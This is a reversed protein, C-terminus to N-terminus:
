LWEKRRFIRWLVFCSTAITLLVVFYGYRWNLEPMHTFNMGYIGAIMTPVSIIAAWSSIKRNDRNQQIEIKGLAARVLTHIVEDFSAIQDAAVTHHDLVDRFYRRVEKPVSPLEDTALRYLPTSLPIIAKKQDLIMRKSLYIQDISINDATSFVDREVKEVDDELLDTLEIYSDVVADAIAHMVGTPGLLLQNTGRNELKKRLNKFSADEGHRVTIVYNEGTIIMIEGNDVVDQNFDSVTPVHKVTKLVLFLLYDYMELKPRQHAELTDEIILPHIGFTRGVAEMYAPKPQFLDLWVFGNGSNRVHELAKEYTFSGPLRQGDVYVHCESSRVPAQPSTLQPNVQHGPHSHRRNPLYPILPRSKKDATKKKGLSLSPM